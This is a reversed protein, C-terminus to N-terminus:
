RKDGLVVAEGDFLCIEEALRRLEGVFIRFM